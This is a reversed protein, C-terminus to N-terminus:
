LIDIAIFNIIKAIQERKVPNECKLIILKREIQRKSLGESHLEWIIKHTESDFKYTHLLARAKSYYAEIEEKEDKLINAWKFGHWSTLPRNPHNYNEIDTFGSEKLKSYWEREITSLHKSDM